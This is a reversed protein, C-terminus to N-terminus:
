TPSLFMLLRVRSRSANFDLRLREIDDGKLIHLQEQPSAARLAAAPAAIGSAAALLFRRRPMCKGYRDVM